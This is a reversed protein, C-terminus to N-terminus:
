SYAAKMSETYLIALALDCDAENDRNQFFWKLAVSADVVLIV